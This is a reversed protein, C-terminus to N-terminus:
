YFVLHFIMLAILIRVLLWASVELSSYQVFFGCKCMFMSTGFIEISFFASIFISLNWNYTTFLDSWAMFALFVFTTNKRLQYCVYITITNGITGFIILWLSYASIIQWLSLM